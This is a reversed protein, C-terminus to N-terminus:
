AYEHSEEEGEDWELWEIGFKEKVSRRKELKVLVIGMGIHM